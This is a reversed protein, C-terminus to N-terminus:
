ALVESEVMVPVNGWSALQQADAYVWGRETAVTYLGKSIAIIQGSLYGTIDSYWVWVTQKPLYVYIVEPATPAPQLNFLRKLHTLM